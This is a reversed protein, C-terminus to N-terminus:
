QVVTVTTDGTEVWKNRVKQMARVEYSGATLTDGSLAPIGAITFCGKSDLPSGWGGGVFSVVVNGLSTDYGCGTVDFSDGAHLTQPTATLTGPYANPKAAFASAAPIAVFLMVLGLGLATSRRRTTHGQKETSRHKGNAM